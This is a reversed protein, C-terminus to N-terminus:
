FCRSVGDCTSKLDAVDPNGKRVGQLALKEDKMHTILCREPRFNVNYGKDCFQSVSLLNHKLGEVLSINEIIINGIKLNGYGKSFVKSDDGFTVIPGAKEVVGTLLSKEGTMHRSCGSDLIWM